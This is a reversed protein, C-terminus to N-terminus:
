ELVKLKGSRIEFIEGENLLTTIYKEAGSIKSQDIVETIDAGSGADLKKILEILQYAYNDTPEEEHEELADSEEVV